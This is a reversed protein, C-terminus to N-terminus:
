EAETRTLPVVAPETSTRRTPAISRAPRAYSHVGYGQRASRDTLAAPAAQQRGRRQQPDVSQPKSEIM